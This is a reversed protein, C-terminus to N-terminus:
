PAFPLVEEAFKARGFFCFINAATDLKETKKTKL